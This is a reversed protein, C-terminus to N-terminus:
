ASPSPVPHPRHRKRDHGPQSEPAVGRHRLRAAPAPPAAGGRRGRARRGCRTRLALLAAGAALSAAGGPEPAFSVRLPYLAQGFVGGDDAVLLLSWDGADLQRGLSIGEFNSLLGPAEWLLTKGLPVFPDLELSGEM